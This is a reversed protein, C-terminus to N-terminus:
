LSGVYRQVVAQQDATLQDTALCDNVDCISYPFMLNAGLQSECPAAALCQPTDPLADWYKYSSEVPHFLGQYHGTEHAMTEGMLRIEDDDFTANPGAHALWSVVVYTNATAEITGPIGGAVGLTQSEGQVRDGIVLLLEGDDKLSAVPLLENTGSYAFDLDPDLDSSVYSEDLTLDYMAWVERWREVAGEVAEVVAPDDDVGDAYVIKV